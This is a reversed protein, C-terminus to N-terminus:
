QVVVDITNVLDEAYVSTSSKVVVPMGKKMKIFDIDYLDMGENYKVHVLGKFKALGGVRFQLGKGTNILDKSGWAWMARADITKIQTLITKAVNM